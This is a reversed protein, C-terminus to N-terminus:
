ARVKPKPRVTYKIEDEGAPTVAQIVLEAGGPGLRPMHFQLKAKGAEDAKTEFQFPQPTGTHLLVRVTAKPLPTAGERKTVVVELTATTGELFTAPNLWQVSIGSVVPKVPLQAIEGLLSTRVEEIIQRHQQELMAHLQAESFDPSALFERYSTGRKVLVRGKVYVTTDLVPNGAGRDETQVHFVTDGVKVDTNFGFIPM